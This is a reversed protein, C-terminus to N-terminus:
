MSGDAGVLKDVVLLAAARAMRRSRRARELRGEPRDPDVNYSM